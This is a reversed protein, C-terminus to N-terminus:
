EFWNVSSAPNIVYDVVMGKAKVRIITLQKQSGDNAIGTTQFTDEVVVVDKLTADMINSMQLLGDQDITGETFYYYGSHTIDPINVYVHGRYFDIQTDPQNRNYDKSYAYSTDGDIAYLGIDKGDTIKIIDSTEIQKDTGLKLHITAESSETVNDNEDLTYLIYTNSFYGYMPSVDWSFYVDSSTEFWVNNDVTMNRMGVQIHKKTDFSDNALVNIRVTSQPNLINIYDDVAKLNVNQNPNGHSAPAPDEKKKCAFVFLFGTSILLIKFTISKNMNNM